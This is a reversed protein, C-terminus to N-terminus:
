PAAPAPGSSALSWTAPSQPTRATSTSSSPMSDANLQHRRFAPRRRRHVRRAIAEHLFHKEAIARIAPDIDVYTYRNLPEHHSLTFGGAGLVLVDKGKFGLDDLL